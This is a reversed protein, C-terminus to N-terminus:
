TAAVFLVFHQLIVGVTRKSRPIVEDGVGQALSGFSRMQEAGATACDFFVGSKPLKSM